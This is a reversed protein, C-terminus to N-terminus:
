RMNMVCKEKLIRIAYAYVMLVNETVLATEQAHKKPVIKVKGDKIVFAHEKIVNVMAMAIM